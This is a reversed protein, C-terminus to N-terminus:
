PTVAMQRRLVVFKGTSFVEVFGAKLAARTQESGREALSHSFLPNHLLVPKWMAQPFPRGFWLYGGVFLPEDYILGTIDSQHGAWVQAEFRKPDLGAFDNGRGHLAGDAHVLLMLLAAAARALWVRFRSPAGSSEAEVTTARAALWAGATAAAPILVLPWFLMAFREEKHAQTSLLGMLSLASAVFPWGARIGLLCVLGVACLGAPLRHFYTMAYWGAPYKGFISAGDEFFNFKVYAIFSALPKGWTMWDIAGFLAVPLLAMATVLLFLRFRRAVLLWIAIVLSVPAHQIRLCIGLGLLLGARVAKGRPSPPATETLEGTLVLAWTMCLIHISFRVLLPFTACLLAALLGGQWGTTPAETTAEPGAAPGPRLKRSLLAGGRWGAWVLTLSLLAWHVRLLTGLTIGDHVGLKMFFAMWAGHYGPLVWSRVGARWEWTEVGAGTLHRWAPELYQFFEDPHHPPELWLAVVRLGLGLLFISALALRLRRRTMTV